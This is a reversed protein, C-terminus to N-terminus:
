FPIALIYHGYFALTLSIILWPINFSNEIFKGKLTLERLDKWDVQERIENIKM